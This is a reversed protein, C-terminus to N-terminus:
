ILKIALPSKENVLREQNQWHKRCFFYEDNNETFAQRIVASDSDSTSTSNSNSNSNSTVRKCITCKKTSLSVRKSLTYTRNQPHLSPCPPNEYETEDIKIEFQNITRASTEGRWNEVHDM